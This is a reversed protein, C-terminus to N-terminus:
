RNSLKLVESHLALNSVKFDGNKINLKDQERKCKEMIEIIADMKPNEMDKVEELPTKGFGNKANISDPFTSLLVNVVGKSSINQCAYHIPLKDQDDKVQAGRPYVRLM